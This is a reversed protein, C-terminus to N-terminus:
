ENKPHHVQDLSVSWDPWQKEKKLYLDLWEPLVPLEKLVSETAKRMVKGSIGKQLPYVAEYIPIKDLETTIYDPHVVQIRGGIRDCKGSVFRHAGEPLTNTLYAAHYHFFVLEVENTGAACIVRYPLRKKKPIIHQLVEVEFTATEGNTLMSANKVFPRVILNNPVNWLIDILYPGCLKKLVASLKDGIGNLCVPDRFLPNLLSPRM